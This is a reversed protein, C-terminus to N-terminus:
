GALFGVGQGGKRPCDKNGIMIKIASPMRQAIQPVATSMANLDENVPSNPFNPYLNPIFSPVEAFAPTRKKDM